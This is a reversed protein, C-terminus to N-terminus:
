KLITNLEEPFLKVSANKDNSLKNYEFGEKHDKFRYYVLKEQPDMLDINATLLNEIKRNNPIIKEMSKKNWFASADTQSRKAEESFPGYQNFIYKNEMLLADIEKKLESRKSFKPVVFLSKIKDIHEKKWTRLKEVSFEEPNKDITTHCNSCLLIINEFEDRSSASTDGRPGNDQQAIVHALEQINSTEGSQFITYLDINCNPNQCYGGSKSLLMRKTKATIAM